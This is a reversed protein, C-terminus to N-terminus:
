DTFEITRQEFLAAVAASFTKPDYIEMSRLHETANAEALGIRYPVHMTAMIATISKTRMRAIGDAIEHAKSLVESGPVVHNVAGYAHAETASIQCGTLALESPECSPAPM